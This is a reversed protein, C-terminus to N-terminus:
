THISQNPVSVCYAILTYLADKKLPKTIHYDCGVQHSKHIDELMSNATCAFIRTPPRNYKREMNRIRLTTEYGDIGPMQIDMFVIDYKNKEIMSIAEIGDQAFSLEHPLKSLYANFINRNDAVDDVVLIKLSQQRCLTPINQLFQPDNLLQISDLAENFDVTFYFESGVGEQSHVWIEGEMLQVIRKAITLGLGTGAYKRSNTTDGQSFSDFINKVKTPAIGIGTDKVSFVFNGKKDSNNRSISLAIGGSKTFKLANNVLHQVIQRLRIRDGYVYMPVEPSVFVTLELDRDLAKTFFGSHLEDAFKRIEFPQKALNVNGREISNYDLLDNIIALLQTNARQLVQIYEEQHPSLQTENLAETIGIISNLPTRLEHSVNVLFQTKADNAAKTKSFTKFLDKNRKELNLERAKQETLDIAVKYIKEVKGELNLIPTHTAHIWIPSGDKHVRLYQGVQEKGQLLNEWLLKYEFEFQHNAPLFITHEKGVISELDYGTLELYAENAWLIKGDPSFEIIPNTNFLQDFLNSSM